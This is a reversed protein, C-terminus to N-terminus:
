DVAVVLDDGLLHPLGFHVPDEDEAATNAPREGRVQEHLPQAALDVGPGHRDRDDVLGAAVRVLRAEHIDGHAALAGFAELPGLAREEIPPHVQDDAVDGSHVITPPDHRQRVTPGQRPVIEDERGPRADDRILDRVERRLGMVEVGGIGGEPEAPGEVRELAPLDDDPDRAHWVLARGSRQLDGEEDLRLDAFAPQSRHGLDIETRRDTARERDFRDTVHCGRDKGLLADLEV